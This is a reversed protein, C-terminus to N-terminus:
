VPSAKCKDLPTSLHILTEHNAVIYFVLCYYRYTHIWFLQILLLGVVRNWNIYPLGITM